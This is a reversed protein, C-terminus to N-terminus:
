VIGNRSKIRVATKIKLISGRGDENRGIKKRIEERKTIKKRM